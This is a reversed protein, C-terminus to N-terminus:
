NPRNEIPSRTTLLACERVEQLHEDFRLNYFSFFQALKLGLEAETPRHPFEITRERHAEPCGVKITITWKPDIPVPKKM